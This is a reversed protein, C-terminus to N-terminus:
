LSSAATGPLVSTVAAYLAGSSDVALPAYDGDAGIGTSSTDKRVALAMVGVDSSSHAADEAKGLNTAGTGPVVAQTSVHLARDTSMAVMGIDNASVSTDSPTAAAMIGVGQTTGTAHTATDDVFVVNDLIQLAAVAPDDNALTIRQVGTGVNGAGASVDVATGDAGIAPKVRQYLVGGIDDAAVTAGTGPTIAVNDAM